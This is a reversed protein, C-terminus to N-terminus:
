LAETVKVGMNRLTLNCVLVCEYEPVNSSFHKHTRAHTRASTHTVVIDTFFHIINITTVNLRKPTEEFKNM